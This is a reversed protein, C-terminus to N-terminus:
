LLNKQYAFLDDIEAEAIKHRACFKQIHQFASKMVPKRTTINHCDSGFLVPLGEQLLEAVFKATKRKEIFDTGVQFVANPLSLLEEYDEPTFIEIYREIHALIPTLRYKVSINHINEAMFMDFKEYPLEFLAMDTGQLKLQEVDNPGPMERILRIEAGLRIEPIDYLIGGNKDYLVDLLKHFAADRRQLFTPEDEMYCYYHPTAFVVSVQEGDLMEMMKLSMDANKAGDDMHPLIHSHFDIYNM